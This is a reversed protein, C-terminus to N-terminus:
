SEKSADTGQQNGIDSPPANPEIPFGRIPQDNSPRGKIMRSTSMFLHILPILFVILALLAEVGFQYSFSRGTLHALMGIVYLAGLPIAYICTFLITTVRWSRAAEDMWLSRALWQMCICFAIIAALGALQIVPLCFSIMERADPIQQLISKVIWVYAVIKVWYIIRTYQESVQARSLSAVGIAILISGLTDNLIDCGNISFDVVNLIGGWFVFRLPRITWAAPHASFGIDEM